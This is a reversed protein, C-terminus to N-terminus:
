PRARLMEATHVAVLVPVQYLVYALDAANTAPSWVVSKDENFQVQADSAAPGGPSSVSITQTVRLFEDAPPLHTWALENWAHLQTM